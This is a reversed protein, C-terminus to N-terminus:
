FQLRPASVLVDPLSLLVMPEHAFSSHLHLPPLRYHNLICSPYSTFYHQNQKVCGIYTTIAILGFATEVGVSGIVNAGETFNCTCGFVCRFLDKGPLNESCYCQRSRTWFLSDKDDVKNQVFVRQATMAKFM